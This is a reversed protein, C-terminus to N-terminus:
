REDGNLQAQVEEPSLSDIHLLLEAVTETQGPEEEGAILAQALGAVTPHEFVARLPMEPVLTSRLRAVVRTALLSHGGLSFFDDHIGVREICLIDQWVQAIMTEVSTGPPTHRATPTSGTPAPLLNRDIKGNPTLPLETLPMVAAPVLHGPLSRACHALLEEPSPASRGAEPVTYAVLRPLGPVDERVVVTATHVGPHGRLVAEVEGPEIRFGRLKVQHDSRGHFTIGGDPNWSALDGTDYLRDGPDTGHPNPIFREATRAPQRHYGRALGAGAIYLHGVVGIPTPNLGTDLIYAHTGTIPRGIGPARQDAPDLLAATSYTTAESPGYLNHVQPTRPQERTQRVLAAPLPEGALCVASISEPLPGHRLLETLVSPVTNLLTAGTDPHDLLDLASDLLTVTDGSTLPLLIEFVSLDFCVSTTALVNARTQAPFNEQAWALLALVNGHTIMVGKPRGTSGSTYLTYALQRPHTTTTPLSAPRSGILEGDTDPTLLRAGTTALKSTHERSTIVLPAGADGQMLTLREPPYAPDLPLYAAGAKLTALIAIILDPTRDLCIGVLTEPGAGLTRLHHALRNSREDLERYTLTTGRHVLAPTDPTRAAQAAFHHHIGRGSDDPPFPRTTSFDELLARLEVPALLPVASLPLDPATLLGNLLREYHGALREITGHDFLDSNYELAGEIGDSGESLMMTLDFKATTVQRSGGELPLVELGTWGSKAGPTNQLVFLTQFLPNHSLNREPQLAEVLREFPLDQHSYADLCTHRVRALLTEFDPDDDLRTRLALTNVFLGILGELEPRTRGAVPTGVVIDDQGSYRALLATYAALLVMYPTTDRERGFAALREHLERPLTFRVVAGRFTQVPPRPRDTPLSLLGPAGALAERWHDIEQELLEGQLFERQWVAYDPYQIELEPRDASTGRLAAEYQAGIEEALVGLSWGDSIIHHLTLLLAHDDTDLQLLRARMLPGAALDFPTAAEEAALAAAHTLRDAPPLETLSTVPLGVTLGPAVVQHPQGDGDVDSFTTRLSEHREVVAQLADRLAEPALKGQLRVAMAMTYAPSGPELQDLFWIRQQAFSAPLVFVEETPSSM